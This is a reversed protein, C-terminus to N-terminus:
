SCLREELLGLNLEQIWTAVLCDTVATGFPRIVEEPRWPCWACLPHMSMYTPLIDM